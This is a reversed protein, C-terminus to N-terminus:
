SGDAATGLASPWAWSSSVIIERVLSHAESTV